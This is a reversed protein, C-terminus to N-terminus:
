FFNNVKFKTKTYNELSKVTILSGKKTFVIEENEYSFNRALSAAAILRFDKKLIEKRHSKIEVKEINDKEM